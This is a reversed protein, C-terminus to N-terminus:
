EHEIVSFLNSYDDTWVRLGPPIDIKSAVDKLLPTDFVGSQGSVLVWETASLAKTEDEETAVLKASKGLAAAIEAVVPKLNLFRNSVHVALIGDPKLNRFYLQFAEKTLLHM